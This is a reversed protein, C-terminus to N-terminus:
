GERKTEETILRLARRRGDDLSRVVSDNEIEEEQRRLMRAALDAVLDADATVAVIKASTVTEGRYLAIFNTL